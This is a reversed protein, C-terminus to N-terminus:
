SRWTKMIYVIGILPLCLVFGVIAGAFMMIEQLRAVKDEIEVIWTDLKVIMKSIGRASM